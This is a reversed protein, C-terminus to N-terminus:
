VILTTGQLIAVIQVTISTLSDFVLECCSVMVFCECAGGDTTSYFNRQHLLIGTPNAGVIGVVTGNMAAEDLGNFVDHIVQAGQLEDGHISSQLFLIPGNGNKKVM